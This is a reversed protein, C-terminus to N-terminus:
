CKKIPHSDRKSYELVPTIPWLLVCVDNGKEHGDCDESIYTVSKWVSIPRIHKRLMQCM